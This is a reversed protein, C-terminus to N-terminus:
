RTSRLVVPPLPARIPEHANPSRRRASPAATGSRDRFRVRV